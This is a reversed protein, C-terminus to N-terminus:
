ECAVEKLTLPFAIVLEVFGLISVILSKEAWVTIKSYKLM